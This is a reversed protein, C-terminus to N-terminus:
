GGCGHLRGGHGLSGRRGGSLSGDDRRSSRRWEDRRGAKLERGAGVLRVMRQGRPGDAGTERNVHSAAPGGFPRRGLRRRRGENGRRRRTRRAAAYEAAVWRMRRAPGLQRRQTHWGRSCAPERGNRPVRSVLRRRNADVDARNRQRGRELLVRVHGVHPHLHIQELQDLVRLQPRLRYVLASPVQIEAERRRHHHRPAALLLGHKPRRESRPVRLVRVHVKHELRQRAVLDLALDALAVDVQLRHQALPPVRRGSRDVEARAAHLARRARQHDGQKRDVDQAVRRTPPRHGRAARRM